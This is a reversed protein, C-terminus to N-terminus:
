LIRQEVCIFSILGASQLSGLDLGDKQQQQQQHGRLNSKLRPVKLSSNLVLTLHRRPGPSTASRDYGRGLPTRGDGWGVEGRRWCDGKCKACRTLSWVDSSIRFLLKKWLACHLSCKCWKHVWVTSATHVSLMCVAAYVCICVYQDVIVWM